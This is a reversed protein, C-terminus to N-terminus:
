KHSFVYHLFGRDHDQDKKKEVIQVSPRATSHIFQVYDTINATAAPPPPWHFRNENRKLKVSRHPFTHEALVLWMTRHHISANTNPIAISGCVPRRRAFCIIVCFHIM